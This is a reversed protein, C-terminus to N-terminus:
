TARRAGAESAADGGAAVDPAASAPPAAPAASAPVVSAAAPFLLLLLAPAFAAALVGAGGAGGAADPEGFCGSMADTSADKSAMSSIAITTAGPKVSLFEGSAIMVCQEGVVLSRKAM